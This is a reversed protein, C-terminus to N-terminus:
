LKILDSTISERVTTGERVIIKNNLTELVFKISNLVNTQSDANPVTDQDDSFVVSIYDLITTLVFEFM